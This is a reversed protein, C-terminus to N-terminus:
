ALLSSALPRHGVLEMDSFVDLGLASVLAARGGMRLFFSGIVVAVTSAVVASRVAQGSGSQPQEKQERERELEDEKFNIVAEYTKQVMNERRRWVEAENTLARQDALM